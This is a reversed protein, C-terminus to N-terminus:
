KTPPYHIQCADDECADEVRGWIRYRNRAVWAYSRDALWRIGPLYYVLMLRGLSPHGHRVLRVLAEAGGYVRGNSDVLKMERLADAENLQPYDRLAEQLPRVRVRDGGLRELREAQARCLRCRGDFLLVAQAKSSPNAQGFHTEM